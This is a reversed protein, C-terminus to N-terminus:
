LGRECAEESLEHMSKRPKTRSNTQKQKESKRKKQRSIQTIRTKHMKTQQEKNQSNISKRWKRSVREPQNKNQRTLLNPPRGNVSRFGRDSWHDQGGEVGGWLVGGVWGCGVVEFGSLGCGVM